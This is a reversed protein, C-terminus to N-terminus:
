EALKKEMEKFAPVKYRRACKICNLRQMIFLPVDEVKNITNCFEFKCYLSVLSKNKDFSDLRIDLPEKEMQLSNTIKEAVWSREKESM